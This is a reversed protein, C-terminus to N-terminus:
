KKNKNSKSKFKPGKIESDLLYRILAFIMKKIVEAEQYLQNFKEDTIYKRDLIRYLQSECECTSAHSVELFQIFEDNGGRGFGEAINDMISGSSDNIQNKLKYDKAILTNTTLWFFENCFGRAKQWVKIEEFRSFTAMLFFIAAQLLQL